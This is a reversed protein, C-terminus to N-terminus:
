VPGATHEAGCTPVPQGACAAAGVAGVLVLVRFLGDAQSPRGRWPRAAWRAPATRVRALFVAWWGRGERAQGPARLSGPPRRLQSPLTPAQGPRLEPGSHPGPRYSSGPPRAPGPRLGAPERRLTWSTSLILIDHAGKSM